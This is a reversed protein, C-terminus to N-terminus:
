HRAKLIRRLERQVLHPDDDLLHRSFRRARRVEQEKIEAFVIAEDFMAAQVVVDGNPAVVESGGWFNVGDEFGVRNCFAVYSSLLRAYARHQESNVQSNQPKAQEGALRTPSASIGIITQAGDQALLYPLPLHWLDECVLVGIRGLSCDFARVSEGPSFYRQEEFMGYTPLYVKRHVSRVTGQEILLASNYIGYDASEEVCGAVVSIGKSADILPKLQHADATRLALDWNSDKVSYGTLSLEPFVVLDAGGEKAKQVFEIHKKINRSLDGLVSDGGRCGGRAHELSAEDM